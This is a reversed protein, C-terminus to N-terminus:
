PAGGRGLLGALREGIRKRLPAAAGPVPAREVIDDFFGLVILREAQDPSLGRSELYYREDEGVPGVSSAHSCRVDNEEIDLNPVSDAHATADLVLNHNTQLADSRSAGRRVKILGTYISRSREAVAGKCLLDSTTRPAVHDQLTRVDHIQDGSGLYVTTVETSGGQGAAAADFRYRDYAGGLGATFSRLTADRGVTAACRALHWAGEGLDQVMVYALRARDDVALEGVPIVLSRGDGTPGAIVEIVRAEADEGLHVLTRLFAAPAPGDFTASDCWHVIVIPEDLTLRAPVDVSVLDGAYGENLSVFYDGRGILAGLEEPAHALASGAGLTVSDPLGRRDVAVVGGNHVIVRPGRGFEDALAHAEELPAEPAPGVLRYADLDFRDIPSYRWVESGDAMPPAMSELRRVAEARRARLWSPGVLEASAEPLLARMSVRVGIRVRRHR